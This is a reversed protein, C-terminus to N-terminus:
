NSSGKSNKEYDKLSIYYIEDGLYGSKYKQVPISKIPLKLESVFKKGNMKGLGMTELLKTIGLIVSGTIQNQNFVRCDKLVDPTTSKDMIKWGLAKKETDIFLSAYKGNLEYIEIVEKPFYLFGRNTLTVRYGGTETQSKAQREPVFNFTPPKM